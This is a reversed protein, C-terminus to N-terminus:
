SGHMWFMYIPHEMWPFKIRDMSWSPLLEYADHEKPTLTLNWSFHKDDVQKPILIGVRNLFFDQIIAWTDMGKYTNIEKLRDLNAWRKIIKEIMVDKQTCINHLDQAPIHQCQRAHTSKEVQPDFEARDLSVYPILVDNYALGCLLKPLTMEWEESDFGGTVLYQLIYVANHAAQHNAFRYGQVLQLAKLLDVLFPWLFVLGANKTYIRVDKEVVSKPARKRPLSSISLVRNRLADSPNLYHALVQDICEIVQRQIAHVPQIAELATRLRVAVARSGVVELLSQRVLIALDFGGMVMLGYLIAVLLDQEFRELALIDVVCGTLQLCLDFYTKVLYHYSGALVLMVQCCFDIGFAEMLHRAALHPRSQNQLISLCLDAHSDLFLRFQSALKSISFDGYVKCFRDQGYELLYALKALIPYASLIQEKSPQGGALSRALNDLVRSFDQHDLPFQCTLVQFSEVLVIWEVHLADGLVMFLQRTWHAIQWSLVGRSLISYVGDWFIAGGRSAGDVLSYTKCWLGYFAELFHAFDSSIHYYKDLLAVHQKFSFTIILRQRVHEKALLATFNGSCPQGMTAQFLELADRYHGLAGTNLFSLWQDQIYQAQNVLIDDAIRSLSEMLQNQWCADVHSLHTIILHQMQQYWLVKSTVGHTIIDKVAPIITNLYIQLDESELQKVGVQHMPFLMWDVADMPHNDLAELTKQADYLMASLATYQLKAAHGALQQCIAETHMTTYPLLAVIVRVVYQQEDKAIPSMLSVQLLVEKVLRIPTQSAQSQLLGAELIVQELENALITFPIFADSLQQLVPETAYLVCTKLIKPVRFLSALNEVITQQDLGHFSKALFYSPVDQGSPLQNDVLFRILHDVSFTDGAVTTDETQVPGSCVYSAHQDSTKRHLVRWLRKHLKGTTGKTAIDVSSEQNISGSIPWHSFLDNTSSALLAQSIASNQLLDEIITQLLQVISSKKKEQELLVLAKIQHNLSEQALYGDLHSQIVHSWSPYISFTETLINKFLKKVQLPHDLFLSIQELVDGSVVPHDSRDWADKPLGQESYGCKSGNLITQWTDTDSPNLYRSLVSYLGDLYASRTADSAYCSLLNEKLELALTAPIPHGFSAELTTMTDRYSIAMDEGLVQVLETFSRHPLKAVLCRRNDQDGLWSKLLSREKTGHIHVLLAKTLHDIQYTSLGYTRLQDLTALFSSCSAMDRGYPRPQTLALDRLHVVMDCTTAAKPNSEKVMSCSPYIHELLQAYSICYDKAIQKLLMSVLDMKSSAMAPRLHLSGALAYALLQRELHNAQITTIRARELLTAIDSITTHFDKDKLLLNVTHQITDQDFKKVFRQLVQPKKVLRHWMQEVVLPNTRLLANYTHRIQSESYQGMWWAFYGRSLYHEILHLKAQVLSTVQCGNLHNEQNIKQTLHQLSSRAHRIMDKDMDLANVQGLDLNLRRVHMVVDQPIHKSFSENLLPVIKDQIIKQAHLQLAQSNVMKNTSIRIRLCQIMHSEISM